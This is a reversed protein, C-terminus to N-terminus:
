QRLFGRLQLFGAQEPVEELQILGAGSLGDSGSFRDPQECAGRGQRALLELIQGAGLM